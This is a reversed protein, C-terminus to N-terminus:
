KLKEEVCLLKAGNKGFFLVKTPNAARKEKGRV